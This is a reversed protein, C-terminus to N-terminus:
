KEQIKWKDDEAEREVTHSSHFFVIFFLFCFKGFSSANSVTSGSM